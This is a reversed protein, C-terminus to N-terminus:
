KEFIEWSIKNKELLNKLEEEPETRFIVKEIDKVSVGGHYQAEIYNVGGNQSYDNSLNKALLAQSDYTFHDYDMDFYASRWSPKNVPSPVLKARDGCCNVDLSDGWTFTTRNMISKKFCITTEGYGSAGLAPDYNKMDSLLGYIVRKKPDIDLEHNFVAKEFNGRTKTNLYGGSTNTEFQSKFRGEKLVRVLDGSSIKRLPTADKLLTKMKKEVMKQLEKETKGYRKEMDPFFRQMSLWETNEKIWKPNISIEPSVKPEKPEKPAPPTQPEPVKDGLKQDLDKIINDFYPISCCRCMIDAGPHCLPMRDERRKWTKGSDESYVTADDWKCLKGDMMFHSPIAKSWKGFPNGRVREDGATEWVYLDVGADKQQAQSIQGNLKGIQDRALRKVQWGKLNQNIKSIDDMLTRYNWGNTVAAEAVTNVNGIYRQSITKILNYNQDAWNKKVDPWWIAATDFQFGLIPKTQKGWEKDCWKKVSDATDGLGMQIGSPSRNEKPDPYYQAVFGQLENILAVFGPGPLADFNLETSDGRLLSEVDNQIARTV